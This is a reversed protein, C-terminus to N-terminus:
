RGPPGAPFPYMLWALLLAGVVLGLFMQLFLRRQSPLDHRWLTAFFVSILLAYALMLLFHIV